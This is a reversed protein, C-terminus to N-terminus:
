VFILIVWALLISLRQPMIWQIISCLMDNFFSYCNWKKECTRHVYCYDFIRFALVFLTVRVCVGSGVHRKRNSADSFARGCLDCPFARTAEHVAMHRRLGKANVFAKECFCVFHKQSHVYGKHSALNVVMKQCIQENLVFVFCGVHFRKWFATIHYCFVYNYTTITVYTLAISLKM